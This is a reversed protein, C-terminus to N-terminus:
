SLLPPHASTLPKKLLNAMRRPSIGHLHALLEVMIQDQSYGHRYGSKTPDGTTNTPPPLRCIVKSTPPYVCGCSLVMLTPMLVPAHETVWDQFRKLAQDPAKQYQPLPHKEIYELVLERQFKLLEPHHKDRSSKGEALQRILEKITPDAYLVSNVSRKDFDGSYKGAHYNPDTLAERMALMLLRRRTEGGSQKDLREIKFVLARVILRLLDSDKPCPFNEGQVYFANFWIASLRTSVLSGLKITAAVKRKPPRGM